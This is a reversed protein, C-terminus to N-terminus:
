VPMSFNSFMNARGLFGQGQALVSHGQIIGLRIRQEQVLFNVWYGEPIYLGKSKTEGPSIGGGSITGSISLGGAFGVGSHDCLIYYACVDSNGSARDNTGISIGTAFGGGSFADLSGGVDVSLSGSPPLYTPRNAADIAATADDYSMNGESAANVASGSWKGFEGGFAM